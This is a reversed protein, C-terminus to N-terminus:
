KSQSARRQREAMGLLAMGGLMTFVTGPEPVTPPIYGTVESPATTFEANFGNSLTGAAVTSYSGAGLQIGAGGGPADAQDDVFFEQSCQGGNNCVELVAPAQSSLELAIDQAATQALIVDGNFTNDVAAGFTVDYNVGGVSLDQISIADLSNGPATSVTAAMSPMQLFLFLSVIPLIGSPLNKVTM